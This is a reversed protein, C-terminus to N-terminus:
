PQPERDVKWARAFLVAHIDIKEQLNPPRNTSTKGADDPSEAVPFRGVLEDFHSDFSGRQVRRGHPM